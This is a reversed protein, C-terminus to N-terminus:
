LALEKNRRDLNTFRMLNLQSYLDVQGTKGHRNKAINLETVNPRETTDGNYYDDRYLFMVVSADQEIEGSDRLDSLMPRKDSRQECQRSLQALALIPVNLDKALGALGRSIQGVDQARNGLSNEVRMLTLYDVTILDLGHEAQLRRAKATLQSLSLSATDDIWMPWESMIGAGRNFTNVEAPTLKGDEIKEFPIKTMAAVGRQLISELGMELNFRAVRYGNSAVHCAINSEMISKGMGPRAALIYLRQKRLGRMIRDLDVFGTMLGTTQGGDEVRELTVDVLRAMGAKITTVNKTASKQTVDFVTKEASEVLASVSKKGNHAENLIKHGADILARRLADAEVIRAYATANIATPVTNILGIVYGEMGDGHRKKLIESVTMLDVPMKQAHLDSIAKYIAKHKGLYFDSQSVVLDVEYFADPDILLSGLVAQEAEESYPKIEDLNTQKAPAATGNSYM